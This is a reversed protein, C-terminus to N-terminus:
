MELLSMAVGIEREQTYLVESPSLILQDLVFVLFSLERLDDSYGAVSVSSFSASLAILLSLLSYMRKM